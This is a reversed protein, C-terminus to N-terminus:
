PGTRSYHHRRTCPLIFLAQRYCGPQIKRTCRLLRRHIIPRIATM